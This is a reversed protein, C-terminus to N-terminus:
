IGKIQYGQKKILYPIFRELTHTVSGNELKNDNVYGSKWDLNVLWDEVLNLTLVNNLVSGNIAYISGAIFSIQNLAFPISYRKCMQEFRNYNTSLFWNQKYDSFHLQQSGILGIKSDNFLNEVTKVKEVLPKVLKHRWRNGREKGLTIESKKSHFKFLTQIQNIEFNYHILKLMQLFPYHDTGQNPVIIRQRPVKLNYDFINEVTKLQFNTLSNPVTYVFYCNYNSNKALNNFHIAFEKALEPYYLHLTIINIM